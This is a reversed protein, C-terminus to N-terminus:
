RLRIIQGIQAGESFDLKNLKYLSMLQIGFVQSIGYFTEGQQVVHVPHSRSGKKKKSSLYVINGQQLVANEGVDNYKRIRKESRKFEIALSAYSDRNTAVVMKVYNSKYIARPGTPATPYYYNNDAVEKKDAYQYNKTVDYQHLQYREILSILKQPYSPDTAYGAAKLGYAWGKYDTPELKFLNQYRPRSILFQSHDEFSEQANQYKRFCENKEDDDHGITNGSWNHCKIGFHNNAEVSLRGKGAGSELLGQALIISAPIKHLQQQRIAIPYFQEIYTRYNQDASQGYASLICYCTLLM